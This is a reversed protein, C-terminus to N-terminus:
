EVYGLAKLRELIVNEDEEDLDEDGPRRRRDSLTAAGRTVPHEM